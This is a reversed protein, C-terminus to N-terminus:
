PKPQLPFHVPCQYSDGFFDERGVGWSLSRLHALPPKLPWDEGGQLDQLFPGADKFSHNQKKPVRGFTQSLLFLPLTAILMLGPHSETTSSLDAPLEWLSCLLFLAPLSLSMALPCSTLSENVLAVLDQTFGSAKKNGEKETCEKDQGKGRGIGHPDRLERQWKTERKMPGGPLTKWSGRLARSSKKLGWSSAQGRWPCGPVPAPQALWAWINNSM